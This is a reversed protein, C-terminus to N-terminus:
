VSGADLSLTSRNTRWNARQADGPAVHNTGRPPFLSTTPGSSHNAGRIAPRPSLRPLKGARCPNQSGQCPRPPFEAAWVPATAPVKVGRPGLACGDGAPGTSNMVDSSPSSVGTDASKNRPSNSSADSNGGAASAMALATGPWWRWWAAQYWSIDPGNTQGSELIVSSLAASVAAM